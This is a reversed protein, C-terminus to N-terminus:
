NASCYNLTMKSSKAPAPVVIGFDTRRTEYEFIDESASEKTMLNYGKGIVQVASDRNDAVGEEPEELISELPPNQSDMEQIRQITTDNSQTLLVQSYKSLDRAFPLTSNPTTM